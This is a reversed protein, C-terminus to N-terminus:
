PNVVKYKDEGYLVFGRTGTEWKVYILGKDNITMIEGKTGPKVRKYPDSIRIAEITTGIPLANRLLDLVEVRLSYTQFVIDRMDVMADELIDYFKSTNPVIQQTATDHIQYGRDVRTEGYAERLREAHPEAAAATQWYSEYIGNKMLFVGYVEKLEYGCYKM